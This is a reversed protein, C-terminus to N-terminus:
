AYSGAVRQAKKVLNSITNDIRLKKPPREGEFKSYVDIAPIGNKLTEITEANFIPKLKMANLKGIADQCYKLANDIALSNNLERTNRKLSVMDLTSGQASRSFRGPRRLWTLKQQFFDVAEDIEPAATEILRNRQKNIRSDFQQSRGWKGAKARNYDATAKELAKQAQKLTKEKQALAAQLKPLIESMEAELTAIKDAAAQRTKLTEEQEEQRFQKFFTTNEIKKVIEDIKELSKM